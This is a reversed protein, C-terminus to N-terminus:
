FTDLWLSCTQVIALHFEDLLLLLLSHKYKCDDKQFLWISLITIFQRLFGQKHSKGSGMQCLSISGMKWTGGHKRAQERQHQYASISTLGLKNQGANASLKCHSVPLMASNTGRNGFLAPSSHSTCPSPETAEKCEGTM